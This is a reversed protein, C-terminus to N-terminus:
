RQTICLIDQQAAQLCPATIKTLMILQQHAKDPCQLAYNSFGFGHFMVRWVTKKVVQM